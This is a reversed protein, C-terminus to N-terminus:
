SIKSDSTENSADLRSHGESSAVIIVVIVAVVVLLEVETVLWGCIGVVVVVVVVVLLRENIGNTLWLSTRKRQALSRNRLDGGNVGHYEHGLFLKSIEIENVPLSLLPTSLLLLVVVVELEKEDNNESTDKPIGAAESLVVVVIV